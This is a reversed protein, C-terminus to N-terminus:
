KIRVILKIHPHEYVAQPLTFQCVEQSPFKILETLVNMYESEAIERYADWSFYAIQLCVWLQKQLNLWQLATKIILLHFIFNLGMLLPSISLDHYM